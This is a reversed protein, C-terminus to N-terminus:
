EVAEYTADFVAPKCPYLEGQVGKIIWDNPCVIHGGELTGVWGHIGYGLGDHECFQGYSQYVLRPVATVSPHDGFTQWQTAEIEIPLKRYKM